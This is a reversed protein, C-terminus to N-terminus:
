SATLRKDSTSCTTASPVAARRISVVDRSSDDGVTGIQTVGQGAAEIISPIKL